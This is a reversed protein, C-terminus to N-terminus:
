WQVMEMGMCKDKILHLVRRQHYGSLHREKVFWLRTCWPHGSHTEVEQAMKPM